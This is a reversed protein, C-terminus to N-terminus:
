IRERIRTWAQTMAERLSYREAMLRVRSLRGVQRVIDRVLEYYVKPITRTLQTNRIVGRKGRGAVEAEYCM